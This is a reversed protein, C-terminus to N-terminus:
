GEKYCKVRFIYEGRENPKVYESHPTELVYYFSDDGLGALFTDAVFWADAANDVDTVTISDRNDNTWNVKGYLKM